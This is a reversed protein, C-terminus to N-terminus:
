REGVAIQRPFVFLDAAFQGLADVLSGRGAAAFVRRVFPEASEQEAGARQRDALRRFHAGPRFEPAAPRQAFGGCLGDIFQRGEVPFKHAIRGRLANDDEAGVQALKRLDGRVRVASRLSSSCRPRM